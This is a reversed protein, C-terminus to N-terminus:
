LVSIVVYTERYPTALGDDRYLLFEARMNRGSRDPKLDITKQVTQGSAVAMNGTYLTSSTQNDTLKVVLTYNIDRNEHNAVGVTVPKAQGLVFTTPYDQLQGGPGLLYFETYTEQPGPTILAYALASASFLASVTLLIVLALHFRNDTRPLLTRPLVLAPEFRVSFREHAPIAHRRTYAFATSAVIFLIIVTAVSQMTLGWSTLDLGYALLPVIAISLGFSLAVREFGSLDAKRPFLVALLCYGPVFLLIVIEIVPRIITGSFQPVATLALGITSVALLLALDADSIRAIYQSRATM